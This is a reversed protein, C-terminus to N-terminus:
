EILSINIFLDKDHEYYLVMLTRELGVLACILNDGSVERFINGILGKGRKM